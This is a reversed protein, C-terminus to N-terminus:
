RQVTGTHCGRNNAPNADGETEVTACNTIQTGPAAVVRVRLLITSSQNPAISGTSTCIVNQGSVSCSWGAGTASVFRLQPPLPDTVRIPARTAAGGVNTVRLVYTVEAEPRLVGDLLKALTLDIPPPPIGIVSITVCSQNNTPNTDNPNTVTACNQITSGPPATVSATFTFTATYGPPLPNPTACTLNGAPMELGCQWGAPATASTLTFSGIGAPKNDRVITGPFPGPPCPANGVNQVTLTITVQQGSLVPNPSVSKRITLDCRGEERRRNGFNINTVSPPVTVTYTGPAPPFTQIWGPQLTESITYTGPALGTFCYQGNAGTTAQVDVQNPPTGFVMNITWGPLGPENPDRVGDGDLDNWKIGCIEFKEEKKKNGFTLNVLQGPQVTVTQPNSTTPTWGSQVQESITYTGPASVGFCIGGQPGTTVSSPPPPSVNFTWGPLLPENNPPNPEHIGNGNLDNFKFVCIEAQGEPRACLRLIVYDVSTDDQVQIHLAGNANMSSVVAPGLNLLFVHGNPFNATNWAQTLLGPQANGSGLFHSELVTIPGTSPVSWLNLADNEPNDDSLPKLRIELQASTIGPPLGTFSHLFHHNPSTSDFGALPPNGVATVFAPTPSAAPTDPNPNFNDNQGAQLVTTVQPPTCQLPENGLVSKKCKGAPGAKFIAQIESQDLARNFIEVEDIAGKFFPKSIVIPYGAGILLPISSNANGTRAGRTLVVNGDVYLRIEPTGTRQVTVAVHHWQGDAINPGTSVYNTCNATFPPGGDCIQSLGAIDDAIQFGLQGNFLYFAYGRTHVNPNQSDPFDFRKDVIPRVGSADGPNVKVWADITFNSTPNGHSLTGAGDPVEVFDDVGDFQLAGGVM